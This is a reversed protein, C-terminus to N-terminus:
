GGFFLVFKALYGAGEAEVYGEFWHNFETENAVVYYSLRGKELAVYFLRTADGFQCDLFNNDVSVVYICPLCGKELGRVEASLYLAQFQVIDLKTSFVHWQTNASKDRKEGM